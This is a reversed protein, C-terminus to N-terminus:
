ILSVSKSFCMREFVQLVTNNIKKNMQLIFVIPLKNYKTREIIHLDELISFATYKGIEDYVAWEPEYPTPLCPTTDLKVGAQALPDFMSIMARYMDAM